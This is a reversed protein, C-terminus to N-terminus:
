IRWYLTILTESGNYAASARINGTTAVGDDHRSDIAQAMRNPINGVEIDNQNAAGFFSRNGFVYAGGRIPSTKRVVGLANALDEWVNAAEAADVLGNHNGNYTDGTPFATDNEDGPYMGYRDYYLVFAQAYDRMDSVIRQMRANYLMKPGQFAVGIILGAIVLVIALELLTFGREKRM